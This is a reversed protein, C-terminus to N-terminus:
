FSYAFHAGGYFIESQNGDGSDSLDSFPVVYNISPSVSLSETLPITFGLSVLFDGGDGNIFFKHNYGISTSLDITIQPNKILTFSHSLALSLYDGDGGGNEEDGYDHYYTLTPFLPFDSFSIGVYFERSCSNTGPFDYYIHGLSLSLTDFEKTYDIVYDIEDSSVSDNNDADWSSWFSFTFGYGSLSFGPQIVPDTDLTFGRWVYRNYFDLSGSFEIDLKELVGEEAFTIRGLTSVLWILLCISIIKKFM